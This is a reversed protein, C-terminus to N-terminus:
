ARMCWRQGQRAPADMKCYTAFQPGVLLKGRQLGPTPTPTPTPDDSILKLEITLILYAVRWYLQFMYSFLFQNGYIIVWALIPLLALCTSFDQSYCCNSWIAGSHHKSPFEICTSWEIRFSTCSILKNFLPSVSRVLIFISFFYYLPRSAQEHQM